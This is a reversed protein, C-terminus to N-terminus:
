QRGLGIVVRVDLSPLHHITLVSMSVAMDTLLQLYMDDMVIIKYLWALLSHYGGLEPCSETLRVGLGERGLLLSVRGLLPPRRM